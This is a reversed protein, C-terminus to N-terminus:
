DVKAGSQKVVRAWKALEARTFASFEEPTNGVPEAGLTHFQQRVEPLRVIEAIEKALRQVIAAPTGAPGWM